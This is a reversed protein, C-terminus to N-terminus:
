IRHWAAPVLEGTDRTPDKFWMQPAMVIKGPNACLWAGWWSFTSNAIIHHKCQSMLRLDEYDKEAGNHDVVTVPHEVKFNDRVWEIDDSFVFFHPNSVDEVLKAVARRYYEIPLIIHPGRGGLRTVYDGRRVHISVSQTGAIEKALERSRDDQEYKVTFERRIIDQIEAFYKETQWYGQLYVNRPAKMINPDFPKVNPESVTSRRYYPLFERELKRRIRFALRVLGEQSTGKIAAIEEPTAFAEQIYFVNLGYRRPGCREFGTIDLKLPTRRLISLRRGLAYQFMQNGLGGRLSVIVM